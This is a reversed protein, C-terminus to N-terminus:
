VHLLDSIVSSATATPIFVRTRFSIIETFCGISKLWPLQDVPAGVIEYRQEGAVRSCKITAEFPKKIPITRSESLARIITDPSLEVNSAIDFKELLKAVDLEHVMRGLWSRGEEDVIRRVELYDIPLSSWIPLLLGTALYVTETTLREALEAVESQWLKEFTRRPAEEWASEALDDFHHYERRLPRHLIVRRILEGQETMFHRSPEALAAKGSKTNQLLICGDAYDRRELVRELSIPRARTKLALQLLHSTVGTRGDTRLVIDEVVEAQEVRLTEVGVDLSGAERAASVRAEVLGLFEEFIANQMGIPLALIRNLWRQIPPLDEELIGDESVIKLGSRRQFDILTASKLKGDALLAFWTSLAAKAYESELNDAPDFLNQGGTQRQGRTLAGLSDLRRAITSTFRLEGKCNTTVPRFLPTNAQHTRHTRGLGQIARDARWGPELLFHIRRKQCAADLSAHYSRGTGGADSFVLIPKRGDMFQDTESQNTRPSRTELRQQGDSQNILRKSRGTVEAVKEPGYHEIIGDLAPKIPPMACLHEIMESRRAIATQNHVPRGEEDFMPASRQTGTDDVFVQMQQTPFARGLYEIVADLPSLDLDLEAREEPSLSDLRRDLISEATSVLQVVVVENRDLHLNIAAILTPLKM